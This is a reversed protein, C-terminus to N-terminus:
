LNRLDNEHGDCCAQGRMRAHAMASMQARERTGVRLGMALGDCAVGGGKQAGTRLLVEVTETHGRLVAVHLPTMGLRNPEKMLAVMEEFDSVRNQIVEVIQGAALVPRLWHPPSLPTNDLCM